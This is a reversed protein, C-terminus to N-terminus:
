FKWIKAAITCLFVGAGSFTRVSANICCFFAVLKTSDGDDPVVGLRDFRVHSFSGLFLATPLRLRRWCRAAKDSDAVRAGFHDLNQLRGFQVGGGNCDGRSRGLLASLVAGLLACSLGLGVGVGPWRSRGVWEGARGSERGRTKAQDDVRGGM